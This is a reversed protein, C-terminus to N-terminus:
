GAEIGAMTAPDVWRDFDAGSVGEALAAERLTAGAAIARHVIRATADYGIHPALATALMRSRAVHAAIRPLDAEIGAVCHVTFSHSADALLRATQLAAHALLPKYVNLELMEGAGAMAVTTNNGIVQVCAM